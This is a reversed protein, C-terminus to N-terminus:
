PTLWPTHWLNRRLFGIKRRHAEGAGRALARPIQSALLPQALSFDCGAMPKDEASPYFFIPKGSSALIITWRPNQSAKELAKPKGYREQM